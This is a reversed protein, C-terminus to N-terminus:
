FVTIEFNSLGSRRGVYALISADEPPAYPLGGAVVNLLLPISSQPAVYINYAANSIGASLETAPLRGPLMGGGFRKPVSELGKFEM